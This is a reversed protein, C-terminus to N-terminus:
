DFNHSIHPEHRIGTAQGHELYLKLSSLLENWSTEYREKTENTIQGFAQHSFKLKTGQGSALL